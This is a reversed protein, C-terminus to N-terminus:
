PEDRHRLEASEASSSRRVPQHTRAACSRRAARRSRTHKHEITHLPALSVTVAPRERCDAGGGAAEQFLVAGAARISRGPRRVAGAALPASLWRTCVARRM